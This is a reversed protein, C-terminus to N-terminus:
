QARALDHLRWQPYVSASDCAAIAKVGEVIQPRIQAHVAVFAARRLDAENVFIVRVDLWRVLRRVPLGRDVAHETPVDGVAFEQGRPESM